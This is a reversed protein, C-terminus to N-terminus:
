RLNIEDWVEAASTGTANFVTALAAASGPVWPGGVVSLTTTHNQGDCTALDVAFGSVGGQSVDLEITGDPDLCSYHLTVDITLSDVLDAQEMIQMKANHFIDDASARTPMLALGLLAVMALAWSGVVLGVRVRAGNGSSNSITM